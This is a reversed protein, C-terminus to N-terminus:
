IVKIKDFVEVNENQLVLIVKAKDKKSEIYSIMKDKFTKLKTENGLVFLTVENSNKDYMWKVTTYQDNGLITELGKELKEEYAYTTKLEPDVKPVFKEEKAVNNSVPKDVKKANTCGVLTGMTAILLLVTVRKKM